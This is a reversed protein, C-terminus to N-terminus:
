VGLCCCCFQLAKKFVNKKKRKTLVKKGWDINTANFFATKIDADAIRNAEPGYLLEEISVEIIDNIFERLAEENVPVPPRLPQGRDIFMAKPQVLFLEVEAKTMKKTPDLESCDLEVLSHDETHRTIPRGYPVSLQPDPRQKPM